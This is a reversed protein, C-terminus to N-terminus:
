ILVVFIFFDKKCSEHVHECRLSTQLSHIYYISHIGFILKTHTTHKIHAHTLILSGRCIQSIINETKKKRMYVKENQDALSRHIM